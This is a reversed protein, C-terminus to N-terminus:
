PSRSVPCRCTGRLDGVSWARWRARPGPLRPGRKSTLSKCLQRGLDSLGRARRQPSTDPLFLLPSLQSPPRPALEPQMTKAFGNLGTHSFKGDLFLFRHDCRGQQGWPSAALNFLECVQLAKIGLSFPHKPSCCPRRSVAQALFSGQTRARSELERSVGWSDTVKTTIRNRRRAVSFLWM